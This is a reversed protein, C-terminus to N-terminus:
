AILNIAEELYKVVTDKYIKKEEFDYGQEIAKELQQVIYQANFNNHEIFRDSYNICSGFLKLKDNWVLGVAPVDLSYAIICAHLRCGIIGKFRSITNVLIKPDKPKDIIRDQINSEMGIYKILKIAFDYDDKHGNTFLIWKEKKVELEKIIGAWLELLDKEDIDIGNDKFIKSRVVGLGIVDADNKKNINYAESIWTASDSVRDIIIQQNYIYKNKLTDLDDRTTIINICKKNLAKRLNQCNADKEDFGEVGAANVMLPISNEEAIKVIEEIYYNIGQYKYKILGGGVLIIIDVDRLNKEYYAVIDHYHSSTYWRLRKLKVSSPILKIVCGLLKTQIDRIRRVVKDEKLYFTETYSTRGSMDLSIIKYESINHKELIREVLFKCSDYIIPDGLNSDYNLGVLAIKKM